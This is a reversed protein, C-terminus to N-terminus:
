TRNHWTWFTWNQAKWVFWHHILSQDRVLVTFVHLFVSFVYNREGLCQFVLCFLLFHKMNWVQVRKYISTEHSHLRAVWDMCFGGFGFPVHFIQDTEIFLSRFSRLQVSRTMCTSTTIILAWPSDAAPRGPEPPGLSAIRPSLFRVWHRSSPSTRAAPFRSTNCPVCKKSIGTYPIGVTWFTWSQATWVFRHHILSQILMIWCTEINSIIRFGDRVLVAFCQFSAIICLAM